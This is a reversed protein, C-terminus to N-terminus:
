GELRTMRDAIRAVTPAAMYDVIRGDVLFVVRDARAAATADHTGMVVTQRLADVADRELWLV